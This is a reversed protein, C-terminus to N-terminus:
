LPVYALSREESYRVCSKLGLKNLYKKRCPDTSSAQQNSKVSKDLTAGMSFPLHAPFPPIGDM